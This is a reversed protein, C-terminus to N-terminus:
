GHGPRPGLRRGSCDTWAPQPDDDDQRGRQSRTTRDVRRAVNGVVRAPGRGQRLDEDRRGARHAHSNRPGMTGTWDWGARITPGSIEARAEDARFYCIRRLFTGPTTM